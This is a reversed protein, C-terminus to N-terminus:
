SDYEGGMKNKTSSIALDGGKTVELEQDWSGLLFLKITVLTLSLKIDSLEFFPMFCFVVGHSYVGGRNKANLTLLHM